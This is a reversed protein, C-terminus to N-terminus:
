SVIGSDFRQSANPSESGDIMHEKYRTLPIGTKNEFVICGSHVFIYGAQEVHNSASRKEGVTWKDQEEQRNHSILRPPVTDRHM